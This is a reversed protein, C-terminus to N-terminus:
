NHEIKCVAGAWLLGIAGRFSRNEIERNEIKSLLGIIGMIGMARDEGM